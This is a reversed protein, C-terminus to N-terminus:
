KISKIINNYYELKNPNAFPSGMNGEWGYAKSESYANAIIQSKYQNLWGVYTGSVYDIMHNLEHGAVSAM